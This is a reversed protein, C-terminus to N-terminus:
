VHNALVVSSHQGFPGGWGHQFATEAGQVQRDGGEGRLQRILELTHLFQGNAGPHSYSLNGGHTNLPLKGGLKIEGSAAFDAGEGLKCFGAGELGLPIMGTFVDPVSAVDIEDPGIGAMTYAADASERIIKRPYETLDPYASMHYTLNLSGVGMVYVPKKPSDMAREASTLVIASGGDTIISCDLKRFPSCIMRSELVEDVTLPKRLFAKPHLSAHYRHICAIEAFQESTWGYEYMNRQAVLAFNTSAMVGYSQLFELDHFAMMSGLAGQTQLASRFNDGGVVLLYELQGESLAELAMRM